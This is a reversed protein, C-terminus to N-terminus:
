VPEPPADPNKDDAAQLATKVGAVGAQMAALAADFEPTTEGAGGAEIIATLDAIKQLLAEIETSVKEGQTKLATLETAATQLAVTADDLKTM